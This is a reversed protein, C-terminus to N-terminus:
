TNRAADFMAKIRATQEPDPRRSTFVLRNGVPDTVRLDRTNWPTDVPEEVASAGLPAAARARAILDDLDEHASFTLTLGTPPPADSKAPVLLLDQYKRRRLHVLPPQRGEASPARFVTTFGLAQVYWDALGSVDVVALTAFMPMPYIESGNFEGLTAPENTM